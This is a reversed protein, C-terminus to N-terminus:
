VAQDRDAAPADPKHMWAIMWLAPPLWAIGAFAYALPHWAVSLQTLSTAALVMVVLSYVLIWVLLLVTGILKRIRM